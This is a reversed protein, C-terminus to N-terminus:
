NLGPRWGPDEGVGEKEGYNRSTNICLLVKEMYTNKKRKRVGPRLAEDRM